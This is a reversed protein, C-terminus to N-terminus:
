LNPFRFLFHSFCGSVRLFARIYDDARLVPAAAAAPVIAATFPRNTAALSEDTALRLRGCPLRVTPWARLFFFFVLPLLVLPSLSVLGLFIFYDSVYMCLLCLLTKCEHLWQCLCSSSWFQESLILFWFWGPDSDLQSWGSWILILGVPGCIDSLLSFWTICSLDSM